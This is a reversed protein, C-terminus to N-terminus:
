TMSWKANCKPCPIGGTLDESLESNDPGPLLPLHTLADASCWRAATEVGNFLRPGYFWCVRGTEIHRRPYYDAGAITRCTTADVTFTQPPTDVIM